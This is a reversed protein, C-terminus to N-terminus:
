TLRATHKINFAALKRIKWECSIFDSHNGPNESRTDGYELAAICRFSCELLLAQVGKSYQMQGHMSYRVSCERLARSQNKVIDRSRSFVSEELWTLDDGEADSRIKNRQRGTFSGCSFKLTDFTNCAKHSRKQQSACPAYDSCQPFCIISKRRCQHGPKVSLKRGTAVASGCQASGFELQHM